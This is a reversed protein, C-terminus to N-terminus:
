EAEAAPTIDRKMSSAYARLKGPRGGLLECVSKGERRGRLDWLATDIGGIARYLHSGPFKLEKEFVREGLGEIDFPDQGLTYPAVQRHLIECTIDAYYTAVQGWGFSGDSATVRVVGIYETCFTEIRQIKM